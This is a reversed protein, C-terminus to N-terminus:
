TANRALILQPSRDANASRRLWTQLSDLALAIWTLLLGWFWVSGITASALANPQFVDLFFMPYLLPPIAALFYPRAWWRGKPAAGAAETRWRECVLAAIPGLPLWFYYTWGLPSVLLAGVLLLAFARDVGRPTADHACAAYTTVVLPAIVVLWAVTVARPADTFSGFILNDTFIRSLFGLVSANMPLWAWSQAAALRARWDLHAQVGFVLLGAVFCGVVTAGVSLVARWKRRWMLYPVLFLLFPKVSMGLGLWVGSRGWRGQRADCWSLTVVLFMLFSLHGTMLATATGIFGLFGVLLLQRQMPTPRLQLEKGIIRFAAFLCVSNGALWLVLAVRQPLWVLPLLLIHFHPPNLNWLYITDGYIDWPVSPNLAYMGGGDTFWVASLFTRGFDNKPMLFMMLLLWYLNAITLLFALLSLGFDAWGPQHGSPAVTSPLAQDAHQPAVAALPAADAAASVSDAADCEPEATLNAM